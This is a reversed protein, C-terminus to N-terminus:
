IAENLAAIEDTVPTVLPPLSEEMTDVDSNEMELDKDTVRLDYSRNSIRSQVNELEKYLARYNMTGYEFNVAKVDKATMEIKFYMLNKLEDQPLLSILFGSGIKDFIGSTNLKVLQSLMKEADNEENKIINYIKTALETLHERGVFRNVFLFNQLKEWNTDEDSNLVKLNKKEETYEILKKQITELSVNKLYKFGQSKLILQFYVRTDTKKIADKWEGNDVMKGISRPIQNVMFKEISRQESTRLYKDKREFSLGYDPSKLKGNEDRKRPILGFNNLYTQDKYDFIRKGVKTEIYKSYTPYYFDLNKENKDIFTIKNESYTNDKIFSTFLLALKLRKVENKYDNFGKFIRSVRRDKIERDKDEEFLKEAKDFTSILKDKLESASDLKNIVMLDKFKFTSKLIQNYAEGAEKNSLDFVYDVSFQAGPNIALGMNVLDREFLRDVQRDIIRIGFFKFSLGSGISAGRDYGRKSIIKLRVKTEDLKFVQVIFEGSLVYYVGANANLIIPAVTTTSARAEVAINLNAPMSVFDGIELKKLAAEASLPLKAPTYPLAKLADGKDKFQRVFLFSNERNVSFGFPTDIVNSLIDGVNINTNVDWKDIRTYYQDQYSADVNYRYRAAINVGDIIELDGLDAKFNIDLDAISKRLKEPIEKKELYDGIQGSYSMPSFAVSLASLAVLSFKILNLKSTKM